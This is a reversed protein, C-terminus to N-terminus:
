LTRSQSRIARAVYWAVPVGLLAGLGAAGAIGVASLFEPVVLAATVLIGALTPACIIYFLAALRLM